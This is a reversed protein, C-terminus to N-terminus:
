SLRYIWLVVACSDSEVLAAFLEDAEERHELLLLELDVGALEGLAHGLAVVGLVRAGVKDAYLQALTTKGSATGGAMGIVYPRVMWAESSAVPPWSPEM